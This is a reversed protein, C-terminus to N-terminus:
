CLCGGLSKGCLEMDSNSSPFQFNVLEWDSCCGGVGMLGVLMARVRGWVHSVMSCSCSIDAGPCYKCYSDAALRIRFLREQLPLKNHILLYQIDRASALLVTSIARQWVAKYSIGAEMEVKPVPFSDAYHLYIAKSTLIKWNGETVLDCSKAEVVLHALHEFYGPVVIAHVGEDIGPVLDGLLEGIWYGVHCISKDDKSRLLRLLQCLMLAKCRSMVCPLGQGGKEPINKMEELSVRLVKGSANWLFKGIEKEFKKVMTINMPLISAAYYVRSLAFTRLVECRQFLTDLVRISWSKVVELFREFRFDWNRKLLSRYSDLAFIGFIKVEKVSKLFNM